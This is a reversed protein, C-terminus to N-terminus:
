CLYTLGVVQAAVRVKLPSLMCRRFPRWVLRENLFRALLVCESLWADGRRPPILSHVSVLEAGILVRCEHVSEFGFGYFPAPVVPFGSLVLAMSGGMVLM